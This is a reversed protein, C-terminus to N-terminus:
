TLSGDDSNSEPKNKLLLSLKDAIDTPRLNTYRALMRYDKHGSILSVEPISLGMEFFRSIAEHRLDHFRLNPVGARMRLREWSLRAANDSIPFVRQSSPTIHKFEDIATPTLPITRPEGNKTDDIRATKNQLNVNAWLLSLLEGRRMGTEVALVFLPKLYWLRSESLAEEIRERDGANLRLNRPRGAAPLTVQKAPNSFLPIDWENRAVKFCHQLIAMERRVTAAQVISLRSDRYAALDGPTLSRLSIKALPHHLLVRIKYREKEAGKKAVTITREYRSLLDGVTLRKLDGANSPLESREIAREYDRAWRIADAKLSFSKSAPPSGERRVQAQWSSGRKRITAM